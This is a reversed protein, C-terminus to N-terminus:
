NKQAMNMGRVLERRMERMSRGHNLSIDEFGNRATANGSITQSEPKTQSESTTKEQMREELPRYSPHDYLRQEVPILERSYVERGDQVIRVIEVLMGRELDPGETHAAKRWHRRSMIIIAPALILCGFIIPLIIICLESAKM